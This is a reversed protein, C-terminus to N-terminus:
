PKTKRVRKVPAPLSPTPVKQAIFAKAAMLELLQAVTPVPIGPPRVRNAAQERSSVFSDETFLVMAEADSRWSHSYAATAVMVSDPDDEFKRIERQATEDSMGGMLLCVNKAAGSKFVMYLPVAVDARAFILLRM